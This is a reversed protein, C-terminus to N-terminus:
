IEVFRDKLEDIIKKLKSSINENYKIIILDINNTKCYKRKISDRKKSLKFDKENKHFYDSIKYHQIGNYELLLKLNSNKDFIAFDFILNNIHKLNEFKFQRAHNINNEELIKSIEIEGKSSKCVPCGIGRMHHNPTQKFIGHKPCEIEIKTKNNKYIVKDYIYKEGHTKKSLNIFDLTTLKNNGICVACGGSHLHQYPTQEFVGHTKCVIKVKTESNSYEVLEYIYKDGHKFISKKVFEEKTMKKNGSCEACGFGKLHNSPLQIFDGHIKCSIIVKKYLGLYNVKKYDYKDGFIWRSKEIFEETDMIYVDACKPCGQGNMHHNPTQQFEGHKWCTIIVKTKSTIYEVKDYSYKEGHKVISREIFEHINLM